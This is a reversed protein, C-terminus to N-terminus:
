EARRHARVPQRPDFDRKVGGAGTLIVKMGIAVGPVGAITEYRNVIQRAVVLGVDPVTDGLQVEEAKCPQWTRGHHDIAIRPRRFPAPIVPRHVPM